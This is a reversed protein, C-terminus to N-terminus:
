SDGHPLFVATGCFGVLLGFVANVAPEIGVSVFMYCVFCTVGSLLLLIVRLLVSPIDQMQFMEVAIGVGVAGSVILLTVPSFEALWKSIDHAYSQDPQQDLAKQMVVAYVFLALPLVAACVRKYGEVTDSSFGEEIIRVINRILVVFVVIISAPTLLYNFAWRVITFPDDKIADIADEATREGCGSCLLLSIAATWIAFHGICRHNAMMNVEGCSGLKVLTGFQKDLLGLDSIPRTSAWYREWADASITACFDRPPLSKPPRPRLCEDLGSTTDRNM